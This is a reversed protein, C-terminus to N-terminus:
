CRPMIEGGDRRRGRELKMSTFCFLFLIRVQKLLKKAAGVPTSVLGVREGGRGRRRGRGRYDRSYPDAYQSGNAHQANTTDRESGQPTGRVAQSIVSAVGGILGRSDPGPVM